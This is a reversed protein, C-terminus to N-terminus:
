PIDLWFEWSNPDNEGILPLGKSKLNPYGIGSEEKPQMTGVVFPPNNDTTVKKIEENFADEADLLKENFSSVGGTLNFAKEVGEASTTDTNKIVEVLPQGKDTQIITEAINTIGNM